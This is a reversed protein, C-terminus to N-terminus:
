YIYKDSLFCPRVFLFAAINVAFGLCFLELNLPFILKEDFTLVTMQQMMNYGAKWPYLQVNKYEYFLSILCILGQFVYM